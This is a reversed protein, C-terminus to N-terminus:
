FLLSWRPARELAKCCVRSLIYVWFSLGLGSGDIASLIRARSPWPMFIEGADAALEVEFCCAKTGGASRPGGEGVSVFFDENGSSALRLGRSSMVWRGEADSNAVCNGERSSKSLPRWVFIKGDTGIFMGEVGDAEADAEAAAGLGGIAEFADGVARLNASPLLMSRGPLVGIGGDDLKVERGVDGAAGDRFGEFSM